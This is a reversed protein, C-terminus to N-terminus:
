KEDEDVELSFTFGLYIANLLIMNGCTDCTIPIIPCVDANEEKSVSLERIEFLKDSVNWKETNCLPCAKAGKWLENLKLLVHNKQEDTIQM